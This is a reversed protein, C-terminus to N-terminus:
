IDRFPPYNEKDELDYVTAVGVEGHFGNFLGEVAGGVEALLHLACDAAVTIQDVTNVQLGCEGLNNEGSIVARTSLEAPQVPDTVIQDVVHINFDTTLLNILVVTVPQVDPVFQGLFGAFLGTVGFHNTIDRFQDVEQDLTTFVAIAVAHGVCFGVGRGFDALAGRFVGQVDRQLEPEAAVRTQSQGQNSQLVVFDLDPQFEVFEAVQAPVIGGGRAAVLVGDAVADGGGTQHRSRQIHVVDVQVSIFAAAEGLHRVFVQDFLQLESTTFGHGAAGVLDLQVEVVGCLFEHPNHLAVGEHAAIVGHHVGPLTLLGEVVGVPPIAGHQFGAVADGADFTQSALVGHDGGLHLEVTVIAERFTFALVEVQYLGVLVVGVDRSDTHVHVGEGELGFFVLGAACAVERANIVGCQHQSQGVVCDARHQRSM